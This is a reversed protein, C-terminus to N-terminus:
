RVDGLNEGALLHFHLHQIEQGADPGTNTLARYGTKDVNLQQAVQAIFELLHHGQCGQWQHIESLSSIHERPIILVHVPAVPHLDHFAVFRGDELVIDSPIEGSAIRCFICDEM